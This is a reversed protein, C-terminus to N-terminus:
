MHLLHSFSVDLCVNIHKGCLFIDSTKLYILMTLSDTAGNRNGNM